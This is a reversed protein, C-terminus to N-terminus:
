DSVHHEKRNENCPLHREHHTIRTGSKHEESRPLPHINPSAGVEFAYAGCSLDATQVAAASSIMWNGTSSMEIDRTMPVRFLLYKGRYWCYLLIGQTEEIWQAVPDEPAATENDCFLLLRVEILAFHICGRISGCVESADSLLHFV